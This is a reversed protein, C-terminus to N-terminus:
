RHKEPAPSRPEPREAADPRDPVEIDAASRRLGDQAAEVVIASSDTSLALLHTVADVDGIRGLALAVQRRVMEDKDGAARALTATGERAGIRGTANAALARTAAGEARDLMIEGLRPIAGLVGLQGLTAIVRDRLAPRRGIAPDDIMRVLLGAADPGLAEWTDAAPPERRLLLQEVRLRLDAPSDSEGATWNGEPGVDAARPPLPEDYVGDASGNAPESPVPRDSPFDRKDM